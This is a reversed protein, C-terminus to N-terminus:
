TEDTKIKEMEYGEKQPHLPQKKIESVDVIDFKDKHKEYMDKRLFILDLQTVYGILVYGKEEALACLAGASAGYYNSGNWVYKPDYKITRKEYPEFNSNYEINVIFPHINKLSKWVWYDNSDIDVAMLTLDEPLKLEKVADDLTEGDECTIITKLKKANPTNKCLSAYRDDRAEIYACDWGDLYFHRTNNNAVGDGSGFELTSGKTIGLRKMIEIFIGLQGGQSTEREKSFVNHGLHPIFTNM